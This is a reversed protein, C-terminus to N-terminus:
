LEGNIENSATESGSQKKQIILGTILGALSGIWAMHIICWDFVIGESVTMGTLWAPSRDPQVMSWIEGSYVAFAFSAGLGLLGFKLNLGAKSTMLFSCLLSCIIASFIQWLVLPATSAFYWQQVNLGAILGVARGIVIGAILWLISFRKPSIDFRSKLM